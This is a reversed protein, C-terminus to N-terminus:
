SSVENVFRSRWVSLWLECRTPGVVSALLRSLHGYTVDWGGSPHFQRAALFYRDAKDYLGLRALHRADRTLFAALAHARDETWADQSLLIERLKLAIPLHQDLVGELSSSVSGPLRRVGYLSEPIRNLSWGHCALRLHLDREQSCPLGERFGGVRDLLDRRHLPSPTPLPGHLLASFADDCTAPAMCRQVVQGAEVVDGDCVPTSAPTSAWAAVQRELKHPSLWDDADLFQILEGQALQLGRNRAACGGRHPGIEVRISSGFSRMVDVSGDMSGDDVVIVETHPYTQELCSRIAEAVYAAANWCPIVISVLPTTTM